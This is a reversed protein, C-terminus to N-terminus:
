FYESLHTPQKTKRGSRTTQTPWPRALLPDPERTPDPAPVANGPPPDLPQVEPVPEPVDIVNFLWDLGLDENDNFEDVPAELDGLRGLEQLIRRIWMPTERLVRCCVNNHHVVLERKRNRIKLLVPSLVETVVYPGEWPPKLKSSQRPKIVHNLRYVIDGPVFTTSKLFLDYRKKEYRQAAGINERALERASLLSDRLDLLYKAPAKAVDSGSDRRFTLDVPQLVERGLMLMNPTFGTQRHPTARITGVLQSLHEDWTTPRGRIFCRIMPSILRNYREVQGNPAPMYPTTRVKKIELLRCLSRFLDGDFNRGQDSFIQLPCGFRSIFENVITSAVTEATQDPLPYCEIWKTFQDVLVLIYLNGSRSRCLPGLIDIHIRDLANGVHYPQMPAKAKRNPKKQVHCTTCTEVYLRCDGFMGYWMFNQQVRAYTKAFGLHGGSLSDHCMGLVEPIMSRPLMLRLTDPRSPRLWRYHLLGDRFVLQEKFQWFKKVAPSALVYDPEPVEDLELWSKLKALDVDADQKSLLEANTYGPEWALGEAGVERVTADPTDCEYDDVTIERLNGVLEAMPTRGTLIDSHGEEPNIDPFPKSSLPIVDDVEEEFRTWQDHARRCYRCEEGFRSCPLTSIDRGPRYEPCDNREDSLRSLADANVHQKGPRYVLVMDYQSLEELWRALQGQVDRFRMLWTLSNHDTRVYFRRGLLHHRYHRTFRVVALLEKRTACYRRQLPSLSFSGFGIPREKGDSGVQSLVAGISIDSADTDLLFVDDDNPFGLTPANILMEKLIEFARQREENWEFVAKCGQIEYLCAAIAAFNPIFDRYYNMFGTFREVDNVSAPVPWTKIREVHGPQVSIGNRSVKRGLYVGETQFLTCKRPKLKLNYKLLRGFVEKLNALHEEFSRGLVSIDDLYALVTKWLLGRLVLQVARSFTAPSNTLGFPLRVHEFLGFKTIFATKHIDDPHVFLQWYGSQMDLNSFFLNGNLCDLCEQIRPLPFADKRTVNNLKRYDICYRVSGDRKRVLVPASAWESDSERIVGADLMKKLNKEEEGQFQKPTRRMREKVPPSDGTDIRHKIETFCGLDDDDRAFVPEFEVFFEMLAKCQEPILNTCSERFLKRLHPAVRLELVALSLEDDTMEGLGQAGDTGESQRVESDGPMEMNAGVNSGTTAYIDEDGDGDTSIDTDHVDSVFGLFTGKKLFKPSTSLNTLNVAVRKAAKTVVRPVLLGKLHGESEFVVDGGSELNTDALVQLVSGPPVRVRRTLFAKSVRRSRGADDRTLAIPVSESRLHIENADMDLKMGNGKIIDMGMLISDNIPAILFPHRCETSGITFTVPASLYSPMFCDRGALKLRAPEVLNPKPNLSNFVSENMISLQAGTDITADFEMGQMRISVIPTLKPIQHLFIERVNPNDFDGKALKSGGGDQSALPDPGDTDKMNRPVDDYDFDADFKM